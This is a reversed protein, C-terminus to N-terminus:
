TLAMRTPGQDPYLNGIKANYQPVGYLCVAQCYQCGICKDYDILVVGFENKGIAHVGIADCALKCPPDECHMCNMTAFSRGVNPYTGTEWEMMVNWPSDPTVHNEMFCASLCSRCGMCRETDIVRVFKAM